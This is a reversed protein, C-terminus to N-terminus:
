SGSAVRVAPQVHKLAGSQELESKSSEALAKQGEDLYFIASRYQPGVNCFQGKPDTPDIKHWYHALLQRYSVKAPDYTIRVAELHGTTGTSVQEYSPHALHGGTYGSEAGIVGPLGEFLAEMCWFCGGAFIATASQQAHAAMPAGLLLLLALAVIRM